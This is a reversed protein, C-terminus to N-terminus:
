AVETLTLPSVRALRHTMHGPGLPRRWGLVRFLQATERGAVTVQYYEHAGRRSDVMTALEVQWVLSAELRLQHRAVARATTEGLLALTSPRSDGDWAGVDEPIRTTSIPSTPDDNRYEVYGYDDLDPNELVIVARNKRNVTDETERYEADAIVMQAAGAVPTDVYHVAPTENALNINERSVFYGQRNPWPTLYNAGFALRELAGWVTLPPGFRFAVPVPPGGTLNAHRLGAFTVLDGMATLVPTGAEVEYWETLSESLLHSSLDHLRVDVTTRGRLTSRTGFTPRYLGLREEVWVGETYGPARVLIRETAALHDLPSPLAAEFFTANGTFVIAQTNDCAVEGTDQVWAHTIDGPPLLNGLRDRHEWRVERVVTGYRGSLAAQVQEATPVLPPQDGLVWAETEYGRWLVGYTSM